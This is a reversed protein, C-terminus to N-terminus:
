KLLPEIKMQAKNLAEEPTAAGVEIEQLATYIAESIEPWKPHPGRPLAYQM